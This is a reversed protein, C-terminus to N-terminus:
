IIECARQLVKTTLYADTHALFWWAYWTLNGTHRRWAKTSKQLREPLINMRPFRSNVTKEWVCRFRFTLCYVMENKNPTAFQIIFQIIFMTVATKYMIQKSVLIVKFHVRETYRIRGPEVQNEWPCVRLSFSTLLFLSIIKCLWLFLLFCLPVRDM